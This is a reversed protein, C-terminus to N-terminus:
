FVSVKFYKKPNERIDAILMRTESLTEALERYLEDDQMLKGMSGQGRHLRALITDARTAAGQLAVLATDARASARATSELLHGVQADRGNLTKHLDEMALSFNRVATGLEGHTEKMFTALDDTITETNKLTRRLSGQDSEDFAALLAELRNTLRNFSELVGELNSMFEPIGPQYIGQFIRSGPDVPTTEAGPYVAVLKQGMIGVNEIAFRTDPYLRVQKDLDCTVLARGNEFLIESVQGSPVGRVEVPDGRVLGSTTAFEVKVRINAGGFKFNKFWLVGAVLIAVSLIFVM